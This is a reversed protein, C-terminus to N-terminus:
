RSMKCTGGGVEISTWTEHVLGVDCIRLAALSSSELRGGAVNPDRKVKSSGALLPLTGWM